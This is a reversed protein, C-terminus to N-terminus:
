IHALTHTHTETHTHTHAHTHTHTHTHPLSPMPDSKKVSSNLLKFYNWLSVSPCWCRKEKDKDLAGM